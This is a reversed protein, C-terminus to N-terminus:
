QLAPTASFTARLYNLINWRDEESIQGEFAPMIGSLGKSIVNFFFTDPHYPIHDYLNAPPIELTAAAPGDGKGSEGHCITCNNQFLMRGRAISEATAPVPNNRAAEEPSLPEHLHNSIVYGLLLGMFVLAGLTYVPRVNFPALRYALEATLWGLYGEPLGPRSMSGVVIGVSAIGSLALLAITAASFPIPSAFSGGSRPTSALTGGPEPVNLNYSLRLDNGAIVRINLIINWDGPSSLYPGQGVYFTPPNSPELELRSQGSFGDPQVFELRLSEVIDVSGTLYVSFTNNGPQNPDVSLTAQIGGGEATLVSEGTNDPTEIRGRTPTLQVLLAVVALVLVAVGLEIRMRRNLQSELDALISTRNRVSTNETAEVLDPRLLYANSAAVGLLPILLLLKALLARGYGTELLDAVQGVEIITNVTGTFLLLAVSFVALISFRQLGSAIVPYRAGSAINRRAWLLLVVLLALMGLWVSTALLHVFDSTVAWFSGGGAAGHSVSSTIALYGAAGILACWALPRRNKFGLLMAAVLLAPQILVLNRLLWREGWRTDLVESIGANIDASQTALEILGAVILLAIAAVAVRLGIRDMAERAENASDGRFGPTVHAVFALAGVLLCGAILLAFKAFVRFPDPDQGAVSAGAEIPTGAPISGDPNLITLPYAGSIRHGDVSSVNEWNVSLYGPQADTLYVRMLAPDSDDFEVREDVRQGQQNVVRVNSFRRELPESFYLTLVDPPTGLTANVPPDARVLLAHADVDGRSQNLALAALAIALLFLV